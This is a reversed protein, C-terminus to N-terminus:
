EMLFFLWERVFAFLFLTCFARIIALAFLFFGSLIGDRAVRFGNVLPRFACNEGAKILRAFRV